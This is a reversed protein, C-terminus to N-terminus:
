QIKIVNTIMEGSMNPIIKKGTGLEHELEVQSSSVHYISDLDTYVEYASADTNYFAAIIEKGNNIRNSFNISKSGKGNRNQVAFSDLHAQRVYGEDTFLIVSGTGANVQFAAVIEDGKKLSIAGIGKAAKGQVSVSDKEFLICMGDKTFILIHKAKPDDEQVMFLKDKDDLGCAMVKSKKTVFQDGDVFKIKGSQTLFLLKGGTVPATLLSVKEGKSLGAMITSVPSGADRLKAEKVDECDITFLNGLNTFLAVKSDTKTEIMQLPRNKIETDSSDGAKTLAKKSIRKLNGGRTLIVYCEEVVKFHEEDIVIDGTDGSIRTRRPGGYKNAIKTMESAILEILKEESELVENIEQLQKQLDDYEQELTIVELKTLRALRLDLIANAQVSTINLAKMLNLRAEKANESNRVIRIVEDINLVATILGEVKHAREEAAEKDFLLRNTVVNKQHAIYYDLIQLLGLTKPQGDAIVVMNIGYSIQLDSYKYLADLIKEANAGNKLEIVARIGTRDTESRIDSIGQFMEKKSERLSEIKRLMASERIEYPLESIVISQKGNRGKEIEVKARLNVKGRGTEYAERLGDGALLVGGTPFDPGKLYKLVTDLRCNPNRLRYCTANVVEKLNHPPINTALGVAIGTAGNVLVNPFRSPLITPEKLSDDFNLQFPVTDKDLDSLMELAIPALRAETYRMAAPGDGDISGFNGQGDILPISMSFPQAMRALAEYISTDGHPHYKGMTDGVIRACKKHSGTPLVQMEHMSYLVHRQVPKLGDEVRPIARELIVYEAYPMFSDHMIDELPARLINKVDENM